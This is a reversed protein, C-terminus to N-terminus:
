IPKAYILLRENPQFETDPYCTMLVLVEEDSPNKIKLTEHTYMELREIVNGEEDLFEYNSVSVETDAFVGIPTVLSFLVVLIMGLIISEKRLISM